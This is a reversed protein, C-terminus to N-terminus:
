FNVSILIDNIHSFRDEVAKDVAKRRRRVWISTESSHLWFISTWCTHHGQWWKDLYFQQLLSSLNRLAKHLCSIIQTTTGYTMLIESRLLARIDFSRTRSLLGALESLDLNPCTFLLGALRFMHSLKVVIVLTRPRSQGGLIAVNDISTYTELRHRVRPKSYYM